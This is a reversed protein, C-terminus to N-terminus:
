RDSGLIRYMQKIQDECHVVIVEELLLLQNTSETHISHFRDDCVKLDYRYLMLILMEIM